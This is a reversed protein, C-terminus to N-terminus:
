GVTVALPEDEDSIEARARRQRDSGGGIAHAGLPPAVEGAVCLQAGRLLEDWVHHARLRDGLGHALVTRAMIGRGDDIGPAPMLMNWWDFWPAAECQVHLAGGARGGFDVTHLPFKAISSTSATKQDGAKVVWHAALALRHMGVM